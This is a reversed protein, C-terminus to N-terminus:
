ALLCRVFSSAPLRQAATELVRRPLWTRTRSPRATSRTSRRPDASCWTEPFASCRRSSTWSRIRRPCSTRFARASPVGRSPPCARHVSRRSRLRRRAPLEEHHHAARRPLDSGRDRGARDPHRWAPLLALDDDGPRQEASREEPPLRGEHPDHSAVLTNGEWRGTTFGGRTHEAYKSPQPRGDMWITM